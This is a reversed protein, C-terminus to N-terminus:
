GGDLRTLPGFAVLAGAYAAAGLWLVVSFGWTLAVLVALVSSIVSFSGNIAWAWPVLPPEHKEIVQVGAAFPLGMFYGIPALAVIVLLIRAPESWGLAVATLPRLLLPYLGVLLVLILLALRLPWFRVTLSGLGSFLLLAFLVIALATVPQGLSLILRQALPIEVFLFALGLCAFYVLVRGRWYPIDPPHKFGTRQWIFLPGLIFVAAALAVLILLVVLVFFGSGGFPQWTMGLSALIEPTQRWKFFHNFFPHNDTAPRIDYEYTQYTSEPDRLIDQFLNYYVPEKLINFRNTEGSDLGAYYVADFGREELFRQASNINSADFPKLSAAVTM